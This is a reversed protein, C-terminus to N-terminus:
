MGVQHEFVFWTVYELCPPTTISGSYMYFSGYLDDFLQTKISVKKRRADTRSKRPDLELWFENDDDKSHDFIIAVVAIDSENLPNYNV